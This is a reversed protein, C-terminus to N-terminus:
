TILKQRVTPKTSNHISKSISTKNACCKEAGQTVQTQISRWMTHTNACWKSEGADEVGISHININIKNLVDTDPMGLLAQGNGPVVFFKCRKKNSKHQILVTCTGLQSITTKNYAKLIVHKNKTTALQEKTVEPFM